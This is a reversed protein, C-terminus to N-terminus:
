TSHGPIYLLCTEEGTMWDKPHGSYKKRKGSHGKLPNTSSTSEVGNLKRGHSSRDSDAGTTTKSSARGRYVKESIEMQDFM